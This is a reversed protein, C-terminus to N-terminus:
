HTKNKCYITMIDSLRMLGILITWPLTLLYLMRNKSIKNRRGELYNNQYLLYQLSGLLGWPTKDFVISTIRLGCKELLKNVSTKNWLHLHRPCDLHYWRDKFLWANLSKSNPLGIVINGNDKLLKKMVAVEKEPDPMHELSFWATILDFSKPSFPADVLEGHIINLGYLEKGREVAAESIEAGHVQVGKESRLKSLFKGTGCGVDLVMSSNNLHQYIARKIKTGKLWNNLGTIFWKIKQKLWRLFHPQENHINTLEKENELPQHPSYSAPYFTSLDEKKIPTVIFLLDCTPCKAYIYEGSIGHLRDIAKFSFIANVPGCIPCKNSYQTKM